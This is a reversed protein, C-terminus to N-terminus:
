RFDIEAKGKRARRKANLVRVFGIRLLGAKLKNITSRAIRRWRLTRVGGKLIELRTRWLTLRAILMQWVTGDTDDVLNRLVDKAHLHKGDKAFGRALALDHRFEIGMLQRAGFPISLEDCRTYSYGNQRMFNDLIEWFESDSYQDGGSPPAGFQRAQADLVARYKGPLVKKHVLAHYLLSFFQTKKDLVRIAGNLVAGGLMKEQWRRDYYGDGLHRIDITIEQGGIRVRGAVKYGEYELAPGLKINSLPYKHKFGKAGVARKFLFYDNVLLDIDGGKRETVIDTIEEANRMVVYDLGTINNLYEFFADADTFDPRWAEAYCLPAGGQYISFAEFNDFAEQLTNSGHLFGTRGKRPGQKFDFINCNVVSQRGNFVNERTEYRPASDLVLYLYFPKTGKTGHGSARGNYFADLAAERSSYKKQLSKPDFLIEQLITFRERLHGIVEDRESADWIVICHPEAMRFGHGFLFEILEVINEDSFTRSKTLRNVYDPLDLSPCVTSAAGFDVITIKGDRVLVEYESLDNHHCNNHRLTELAAMVQTRWDPPINSRSIPEGCDTMVISLSHSDFSVLEPAVGTGALEKLWFVERNFQDINDTTLKKVIHGSATRYVTSTMGSAIPKVSEQNM